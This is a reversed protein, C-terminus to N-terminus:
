MMSPTDRLPSFPQDAGDGGPRRARVSSLQFRRLPDGGRGRHEGHEADAGRRRRAGPGGWRRVPGGGVDIRDGRGRRVRERFRRHDAAVVSVPVGEGGAIRELGALGRVPKERDEARCRKLPYTPSAIRVAVGTPGRRRQGKARCGPDADSRSCVTRVVSLGCSEAIADCAGCRRDNGVARASRTGAAGRPNKPSEVRGGQPASIGSPQVVSWKPPMEGHREGGPESRRLGAPGDFGNRLSRRMRRVAPVGKAAPCEARDAWRNCRTRRGGAERRGNTSPRPAIRAGSRHVRHDESRCGRYRVPM